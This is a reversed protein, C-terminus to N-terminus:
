TALSTSVHQCTNVSGPRICLDSQKAPRRPQLIGLLLLLKPRVAVIRSRRMQTCARVAPKARADYVSHLTGFEGATREVLQSSKNTSLPQPQRAWTGM